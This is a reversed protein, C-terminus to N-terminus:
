HRNIYRYVYPNNLKEHEVTTSAGHGPLIRTNEPLTLLRAASDIITPMSGLPFDTRGISERFLTDGSFLITGDLLYCVGGPTHGPTEIVSFEHGIINYKDGDKVATDLVFRDNSTGFLGNPNGFEILAYDTESMFVRAGRSYLAGVAGIHDFHAHTILVSDIKAHHTDLLSLIDDANAAPDVVVASGNEIVIYTNTACYGLTLTHIDMFRDTSRATFKISM